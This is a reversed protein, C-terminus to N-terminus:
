IDIRVHAAKSRTYLNGLAYALGPAPAGAPPERKLTFGYQSQSLLPMCNRVTPRLQSRTSLCGVHAAVHVRVANGTVSRYGRHNGLRGTGAGSASHSPLRSQPVVLARSGVSQCDDECVSLSRKAGPSCCRCFAPRRILVTLRPKAKPRRQSQPRGAVDFSKLTRTVTYYQILVPRGIHACGSSHYKIPNLPRQRL